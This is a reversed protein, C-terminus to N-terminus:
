CTNRHRGPGGYIGDQLTRKLATLRLIIWDRM